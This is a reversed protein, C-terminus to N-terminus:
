RDTGEVPEIADAADFAEITIDAGHEDDTWLAVLRVGSSAAITRAADLIQEGYHLGGVTVRPSSGGAVLQIAESVLRLEHDLGTRIRDPDFPRRDSGAM